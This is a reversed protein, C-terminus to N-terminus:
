QKENASTVYGYSHFTRSQSTFYCVVLRGKYELHVQVCIYIHVHLSQFKLRTYLNTHTCSVYHLKCVLENRCKLMEERVNIKFMGVDSQRYECLALHVKFLYM